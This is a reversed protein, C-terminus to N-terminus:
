RLIDGLIGLALDDKDRSNLVRQLSKELSFWGAFGPVASDIQATLTRAVGDQDNIPGPKEKKNKLINLLASSFKSDTISDFLELPDKLSNDIKKWEGRERDILEQRAKIGPVLHDLEDIHDNVWISSTLRRLSADDNDQFSTAALVKNAIAQHRHALEPDASFAAGLIEDPAGAMQIAEHLEIAQTFHSHLDDTLKSLALNGSGNAIAGARRYVKNAMDLKFAAASTGFTIGGDSSLVLATSPAVSQQIPPKGVWTAGSSQAWRLLAFVEAFENARAFPDSVQVLTPILSYIPVAKEPRPKDGNFSILTIYATERANQDVQPADNSPRRVSIVGKPDLNIQLKVDTFKYQGLDGYKGNLVDSLQMVDRKPVGNDRITKLFDESIMPLTDLLMMSHGLRTAVVDPHVVFSLGQDAKTFDLGNTEDIPAVVFRGVFGVLGLAEGKGTAPQDIAPAKAAIVTDARITHSAVIRGDRLKFLLRGWNERIDASTAAAAIAGPMWSVSTPTPTGPAASIQNGFIVGGFGLARAITRSYTRSSTGASIPYRSQEFLRYSDESMSRSSPGPDATRPTGPSPTFPQPGPGGGSANGSLDDPPPSFPQPGPAGAATPNDPGSPPPMASTAIIPLLLSHVAKSVPGDIDGLQAEKVKPTVPHFQTSLGPEFAIAPNDAHVADVLRSLKQQDSPPPSKLKIAAEFASEDDPQSRLVEYAEDESLNCCRGFLYPRHIGETYRSVIKIQARAEPPLRTTLEATTPVGFSFLTPAEVVPTGTSEPFAHALAPEYRIADSHNAAVLRAVKNLLEQGNGQKSVEASLYAAELMRVNPWLDWRRWTAPADKPPFGLQILLLRITPDQGHLTDALGQLSARGHESFKTAQAWVGTPLLAQYLVVLFGVVSAVVLRRSRTM